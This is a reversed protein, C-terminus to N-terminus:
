KVHVVAIKVYYVNLFVTELIKEVCIKRLHIINLLMFRDHVEKFYCLVIPFTNFSIDYVFLGLLEVAIIVISANKCLVELITSAFCSSFKTM